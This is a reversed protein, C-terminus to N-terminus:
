QNQPVIEYGLIVKKKSLELMFAKNKDKKLFENHAAERMIDEFSFSYSCYHEQLPPLAHHKLPVKGQGAGM